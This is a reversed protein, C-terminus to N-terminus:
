LSKLHRRRSPGTRPAGPLPRPAVDRITVEPTTANRPAPGLIPTTGERHGRARGPGAGSPGQHASAGGKQLGPTLPGQHEGRRRARTATLWLRPRLSLTQACLPPSSLYLPVHAGTPRPASVLTYLHISLLFSSFPPPLFLLSPLLFPAHSLVRGPPRRSPTIPGADRTGVTEAQARPPRTGLVWM